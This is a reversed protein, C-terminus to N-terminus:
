PWFRVASGFFGNRGIALIRGDPSAVLKDLITMMTTDFTAVGGAGFDKDVAVKSTFRKISLNADGSQGGLVFGGDPQALLYSSGDNPFMVLFSDDNVYTPSSRTIQLQQGNLGLFILNGAPDRTYDVFYGAPELFSPGPAITADLVGGATCGQIGGGSGDSAASFATLISGDARLFSKSGVGVVSCVGNAGYTTDIQGNSLWRTMSASTGPSAHGSLVLADGNSLAFVQALGPNGSLGDTFNVSGLTGFSTDPSGDLHLRHLAPAALIGTDIVYIFGQGAGPGEYADLKVGPITTNAVNVTGAQGFTTDITGDAKLRTVVTNMNRRVGLLTSGDNLVKADTIEADTGVFLNDIHGTTAFTTDLTGRPGRVFVIPNAVATAGAAVMETAVLQAKTSGQIADLDAHLTLTGTLAQAPIMLADATVKSPLNSVVVTVAGQSAPHRTLTVPIDVKSGQIVYATPTGLAVDLGKDESGTVVMSADAAPATADPQDAVPLDSGNFSSCALPLALFLGFGLAGVIRGTMSADYPVLETTISLDRPTTCAASASEMIAM